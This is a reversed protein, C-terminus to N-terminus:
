VQDDVFHQEGTDNIAGWKGIPCSKSKLRVKAPMICGCNRCLKTKTLDECSNCIVMRANAQEGTAFFSSVWPM